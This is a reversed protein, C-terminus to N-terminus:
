TLIRLVTGVLRTSMLQGPEGELWPVACYLKSSVEVSENVLEGSNVGESADIACWIILEVRNNQGNLGVQFALTNFKSVTLRV